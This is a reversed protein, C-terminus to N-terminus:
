VFDFTVILGVDVPALEQRHRRFASPCLFGAISQSQVVSGLRCNRSARENVVTRHRTPGRYFRGLRFVRRAAWESAGLDGEECFEHTALPYPAVYESVRGCAVTVGGEHRRLVQDFRLQVTAVFRICDLEAEVM